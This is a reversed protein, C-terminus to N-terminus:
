LSSFLGPSFYDIILISKLKAQQLWVVLGSFECCNSDRSKFWCSFTLFCLEFAFICEQRGDRMEGGENLGGRAFKM